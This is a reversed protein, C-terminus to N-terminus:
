IDGFCETFSSPLELLSLPLPDKIHAIEPDGMKVTQLRLFWRDVLRCQREWILDDLLVVDEVLQAQKAGWRDRNNDDLRKEMEEIEKEQQKVLDMKERDQNLHFKQLDREQTKELTDMADLEEEFRTLHEKTVNEGLLNMRKNLHKIATANRAAKDKKVEDMRELEALERAAHKTELKDLAAKHQLLFNAFLLYLCV